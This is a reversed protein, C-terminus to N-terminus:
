HDARACDRARQSVLLGNRVCDAFGSGGKTARGHGGSQHSPGYQLVDKQTRLVGNPVKAPPLSGQGKTKIGPVIEVVTGAVFREIVFPMM